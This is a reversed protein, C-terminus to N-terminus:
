YTHAPHAGILFLWQFLVEDGPEREGHYTHKYQMRISQFESPKFTLIASEATELKQSSDIPEAYDYRAGAFWRQSLQVEAFTYIGVSKVTETLSEKQSAFWETVWGFSRYTGTVPRKWKYTLDFSELTTRFQGDPDNVGTAGSLGWDIASSEDLEHFSDLHLLYALDKSQGNNFSGETNGNLIQIDLELFQNWPNPILGSLSGGSDSWQDGNFLHSLMIPLDVFPFADRHMKNVKGFHTHFKGVKAQLTWPLATTTLYGEEVGANGQSPFSIVFTGNTYPDIAALLNLEGESFDLKNGPDPLNAGAHGVFNGIMGIKLNANPNQPMSAPEQGFSVGDFLFLFLIILRLM